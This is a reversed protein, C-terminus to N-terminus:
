LLVRHVPVIALGHVESQRQWGGWVRRPEGKDHPHHRDLISVVGDALRPNRRQGAVIGGGRHVSEALAFGSVAPSTGCAHVEAGGAADDGRWRPAGPAADVLLRGRCAPDAGTSM